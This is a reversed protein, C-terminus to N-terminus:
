DGKRVDIKGDVMIKLARIMGALNLLVGEVEDNNAAAETMLAAIELDGMAVYNGRSPRTGTELRMEGVMRVACEVLRRYEDTSLKDVENAARTLESIFDATYSM